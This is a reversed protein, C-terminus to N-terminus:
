NFETWERVGKKRWISKLIISGDVSLDGLHDRGKLRDSFYRGIRLARQEPIFCSGAEYQNRAQSITRDQFHLRCPGGFRRNVKVTSYSTIDWFLDRWLVPTFIKSRVNGL